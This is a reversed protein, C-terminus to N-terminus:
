RSRRSISSPGNHLNAATGENMLGKRILQLLKNLERVQATTLPALTAHVKNVSANNVTEALARGAKTLFIRKTRGDRADGERRVLSRRSLRDILKAMAGKTIDLVAALEQQANGEFYYLHAILYWESRPLNLVAMKADFQRRLLRGVDIVLYATNDSLGAKRRSKSRTKM